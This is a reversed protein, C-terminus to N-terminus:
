LPQINSTPAAYVPLRQHRLCCARARFDPSFRGPSSGPPCQLSKHALVPLWARARVGGRPAGQWHNQRKDEAPVPHGAAHVQRRGRARATLPSRCVDSADGKRPEGHAVIDTCFVHVGEVWRAPQQLALRASVLAGNNGCALWLEAAGWAAPPARGAMHSLLRLYLAAIVRVHESLHFIRVQAAPGSCRWASALCRRAPARTSCRCALLSATLGRSRAWAPRRPSACRTACVGSRAADEKAKVACSLRLPLPKSCGARSRSGFRWAGEMRVYRWAGVARLQHVWLAVAFALTALM